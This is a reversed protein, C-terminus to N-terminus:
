RKSAQIASWARRAVPDNGREAWQVIESEIFRPAKRVYVHPIPSRPRTMARHIVPPSLKLYEAAEATTLYTPARSPARSSTAGRLHLVLKGGRQAVAFSDCEVRLTKKSANPATAKPTIPVRSKSASAPQTEAPSRHVFKRIREVEERHKGFLVCELTVRIAHGASVGAREAGIKLQQYAHKCWVFNVHRSHPSRQNPM